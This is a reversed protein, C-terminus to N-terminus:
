PPAPNFASPNARSGANHDRRKEASPNYANASDIRPPLYHAPMMRLDTFGLQSTTPFQRAADSALSHSSRDATAGSGSSSSSANRHQQGLFPLPMSSATYTASSNTQQISSYASSNTGISPITPTINALDRNPGTRLLGGAMPPRANRAKGLLDELRFSLATTSSILVRLVQLIPPLMHTAAM